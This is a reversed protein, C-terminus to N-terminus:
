EDCSCGHTEPERPGYPTSQATPATTTGNCKACNHAQGTVQCGCSCCALCEKGDKRGCMVCLPLEISLYTLNHPLPNRNVGMLVTLIYRGSFRPSYTDGLILVSHLFTGARPFGKCSFQSNSVPHVICTNGTKYNAAFHCFRIEMYLPFVDQKRLTKTIV